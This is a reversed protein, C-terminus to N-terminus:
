TYNSFKTSIMLLKIKKWFFVILYNYLKRIIYKDDNQIYLFFNYRPPIIIRM